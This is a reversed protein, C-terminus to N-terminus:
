YNEYYSYPDASGGGSGDVTPGIHPEAFSSHAGSRLAYAPFAKMRFDFFFERNSSDISSTKVNYGFDLIFDHLDRTFMVQYEDRGKNEADWRVYGGLKWLPNITWLTEFAFQDGGPIDGINRIFRQGFVFKVRRFKLVFDHNFARLKNQRISHDFRAQYQLWEYPRLVVEQNFLTDNSLLTSETRGEYLNTLSSGFGGSDQLRLQNVYSNLSVIDVRRVKGDVVRKTQLRNEVGVTVQDSSDLRDVSDFNELRGPNMTVKDGRYQVLPEIVHRLENIEMGMKDYHADYTKYFQTRVDGGYGFAGRFRDSSSEKNRSYYTERLNVFPSFKLHNWEVPLSWENLQDARNADENDPRVRGHVKSLNDYAVESKYFVKSGFLPQDRWDLQVRPLREVLSEFRNMQKEVHVLSGWNETNKTLTVFSQPEIEAQSEKRFFEQLFYEDEIRNYRLIVNSNPDIDTRHIWTLRGRTRDETNQFGNNTGSTRPAKKDQTVYGKVIGNAWQGYNYNLDVGGGIGRRTRYDLHAKGGINENISFGKTTEIYYGLRSNYGVSAAIPANIDPRLPIIMYPLWFVPKGLVYIFANKIIMKDNDIVKVSKGRIEYHPHELNCTTASGDKIIRKGKELQKVEKGNVFWPATFGRGDPFSGSRNKFDYTIEDGKAVPIDKHFILVHGTAYVTKTDPDVQAFDATLHDDHYRVVVNNRAIIKKDTKSYELSDAVAEVKDEDQDFISQTPVAAAQPRSKDTEAAFARTCLLLSLVVAALRQMLVKLTM